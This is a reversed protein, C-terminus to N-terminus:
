RDNTCNIYELSKPLLCYNVYSTEKIKTTTADIRFNNM